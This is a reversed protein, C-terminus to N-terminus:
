NGRIGSWGRRRYLGARIVVGAGLIIPTPPILPKRSTDGHIAGVKFLISGDLGM